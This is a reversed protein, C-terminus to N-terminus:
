PRPATLGARTADIYPNLSELEADTHARIGRVGALQAFQKGEATEPFGLLAQRVRAALLTSMSSSALVLFGPVRAFESFVELEARVAEPIQRFEGASMIALPVDGSRLLQGLSDDNRVQVTQYDEGRALGESRLWAFGRLAVLSQPNALGLTKGRLEQASRVPRAKSTVALAPIPPEYIALPVLGGDLQALRGLNAATVVIDYELKMTRAHYDRFDTATLIEVPQGLERELYTRFPQYSALIVRASLNPLVGVKLVAPQANAAPGVLMAISALLLAFSHVSLFRFSPM